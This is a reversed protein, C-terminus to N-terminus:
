NKALLLTNSRCRDESPSSLKDLNNRSNVKVTQNYWYECKMLNPHNILLWNGYTEYESFSAPEEYDISDLIAEYWKRGPNRSEIDAKMEKLKKSSFLIQHTQFSYKAKTSYAFIRYFTDFYPIHYEDSILLISRGSSDLFYQPSKLLINADLALIFENKSIADAALRLLSQFLAKRSEENKNMEPLSSYSFPLVGQNDVFQCDNEKCILRWKPDAPAIVYIQDIRNKLNSRVAHVATKLIPYDIETAILLIDIPNTAIQQFSNPNGFTEPKQLYRYYGYPSLKEFDYPGWNGDALNMGFVARRLPTPRWQNLISIQGLHEIYSTETCFNRVGLQEFKNTMLTEDDPNEEFYGLNEFDERFYFYNLMGMQRKVVYNGHPSSFTGLVQHYIYDSSNFSSFPGLIHKSHNRKAWLCIELTKKLWDPHYLADPDSWGIIDFQDIEYLKRIAKNIAAGANNPGKPTFQRIIKYKPPRPKNIIERVRPDKSGDDIILFTIDYNQIDSSFLSDLCLELYDPREYALIAMGIKFNSPLERKLQFRLNGTVSSISKITRLFVSILHKGRHYLTRLSHRAWFPLIRKALTKLLYRFNFVIDKLQIRGVNPNSRRYSRQSDQIQKRKQIFFQRLIESDFIDSTRNAAEIQDLWQNAATLFKPSNEFSWSAIKQHIKLNELTPTLGLQQLQRIHVRESNHAQTERRVISTNQEHTRYKLLIQPINAFQVSKSIREWLEYDEAYIFDQNYLIGKSKFSNSRWMVTPHAIAGYFIMWVRIEHHQVPLQWIQNQHFGFTRVWTGCVDIQPNQQLFKLQVAFRNPMCIDDSDMRAIFEGNASKIGTNLAGVIGKEGENSLIRVRSDSTQYRKLISYSRDTSGDDIALLEFNSYTQQLISEIAESLYKEGNYVPMIVSIKPLSSM